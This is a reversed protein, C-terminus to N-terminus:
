FDIRQKSNKRKNFTKGTFISKQSQKKPQESITNDLIIKTKISDQQISLKTPSQELTILPIQNSNEKLSSKAQIPSFQLQQNSWLIEKQNDLSYTQLNAYNKPVPQPSLAEENYINSHIRKKLKNKSKGYFPTNAKGQPFNYMQVQAIDDLNDDNNDKNQKKNTQAKKKKILYGLIFNELIKKGKEMSQQNEIERKKPDIKKKIIGKKQLYNSDLEAPLFHSGEFAIVRGKEEDTTFNKTKLIIAKNYTIDAIDMRKLPMSFKNEQKNESTGLKNSIEDLRYPSQSKIDGDQYQMSVNSKNTTQAYNGTQNQNIKSPTKKSSTGDYQLISKIETPSQIASGFGYKNYKTKGSTSNPNFRKTFPSPHRFRIDITSHEKYNIEPLILETQHPYQNQIYPSNGRSHNAHLFKDKGGSKFMYGIKVLNNDNQVSQSRINRPIMENRLKLQNSPQQNSIQNSMSTSTNHRTDVEENTGLSTKVGSKRYFGYDTDIKQKSYALDKQQLFQDVKKLYRNSNPTNIQTSQPLNRTSHQELNNIQTLEFTKQPENFSTNQTNMVEKTVPSSTRENKPSAQKKNSMTLRLLKAECSYKPPAGLYEVFQQKVKQIQAINEKRWDNKLQFASELEKWDEDKFQQSLVRFFDKKSIQFYEGIATDCSVTFIRKDYNKLIEEDGFCQGEGLIAIESYKKSQAIKFNNVDLDEFNYNYNTSKQIKFRGSKIIYIGDAEDGENYIINNCFSKKLHFSQSLAKLQRPNLHYNFICSSQILNVKNIEQKIEMSIKFGLYHDRRLVACELMQDLNSVSYSCYKTEDYNSGKLIERGFSDGKSLMKKLLCIKRIGFTGDRKEYEIVDYKKVCAKGELILYMQREVQGQKCVLENRQYKKYTIHSIVQLFTQEDFKNQLKQIFDLDKFYFLLVTVDDNERNAIAKKLIRQVLKSVEHMDMKQMHQLQAKDIEYIKKNLYIQPNFKGRKRGLVEYDQHDM